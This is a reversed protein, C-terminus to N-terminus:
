QVTPMITHKKWIERYDNADLVHYKGLKNYTKSIKALAMNEFGHYTRFFANTAM